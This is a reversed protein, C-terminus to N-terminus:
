AESRSFTLENIVRLKDQEEVLGVSINTARCSGESANGPVCDDQWTRCRSDSQSAGRGRVDSEMWIEAHLGERAIKELEKTGERPPATWICPTYTSVEGVDDM